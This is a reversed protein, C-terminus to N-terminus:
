RAMATILYCLLTILMITGGLGIINVVFMATMRKHLSKVANQTAREEIKQEMLDLLEKVESLTMTVYSFNKKIGDIENSLTEVNESLKEGVRKECGAILEETKKKNRDQSESIAVEMEELQNALQEFRSDLIKAFEEMDAAGATERKEQLLIRKELARRLGETQNKLKEVEDVLFEQELLEETFM